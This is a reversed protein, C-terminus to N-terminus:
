WYYRGHERYYAITRIMGERLPVEPKWGVAAAIKSADAVYDGPELEQRERTFETFRVSGEGAVEVILQALQIFSTPVGGGVNFVEGYCAQTLAVALFARVTDAVYVYDRLIRGDGFVDITERSLARRVFWNAVGYQDHKMQHRPGFTNTIRLCVSRVGHVQHYVQFMKEATMNTIAYMGKPNMPHTEDVPLRTSPGYQGRTGSFIVVAQRNFMRCAELLVLSGRCNIDLDRLPDRISDVHNVQGALHFIFDQDRVLQNMSDADRIDAINLHLRGQVPELNYRNAGHGPLFNDVVTVEAGAEVLAIALNSGLFGAGGTILARRGKFQGLDVSM